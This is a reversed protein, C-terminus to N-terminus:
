LKGACRYILNGNADHGYWIAKRETEGCHEGAQRAPEVGQNAADYDIRIRIEDAREDVVEGKEYASCAALVFVAPLLPGFRYAM